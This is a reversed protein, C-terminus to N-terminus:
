STYYLGELFYQPLKGPGAGACIMSLRAYGTCAPADVLAVTQFRAALNGGVDILQAATWLTKWLVM